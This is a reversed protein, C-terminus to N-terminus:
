TVTQDVYILNKTVLVTKQVTSDPVTLDDDGYKVVVEKFLYCYLCSKRSAAHRQNEIFGKFIHRVFQQAAHGISPASSCYEGWGSIEAAAATASFFISNGWRWQQKNAENVIVSFLESVSSLYAECSPSIVHPHLSLSLSDTM